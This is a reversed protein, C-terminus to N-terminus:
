DKNVYKKILEKLEGLNDYNVNSVGNNTWSYFDEIFEAMVVSNNCRAHEKICSSLKELKKTSDM